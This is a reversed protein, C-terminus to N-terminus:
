RVEVECSFLALLREEIQKPDRLLGGGRLRIGIRQLAGDEGLIVTVECQTGDVSFEERLLELVGEKLMEASRASVADSFVQEY